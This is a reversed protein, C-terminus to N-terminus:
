IMNNKQVKEMHLIVGKFYANLWCLSSMKDAGWLSLPTNSPDSKLYLHFTLAKTAFSLRVQTHTHTHNEEASVTCARVQACTYVAGRLCNRHLSASKPQLLSVPPQLAGRPPRRTNALQQAALQMLQVRSEPIHLLRAARKRQICLM